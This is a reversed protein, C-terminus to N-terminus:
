DGGGHGHGGSRGHDSGHKQTQCPVNVSNGNPTTKNVTEGHECEVDGDEPHHSPNADPIGHVDDDSDCSDTSGTGGDDDAEDDADDGTACPSATASPTPTDAAPTDTSTPTSTAAGPTNTSTPTNTAAGPTDTPAPTDTAAATNTATPTDTAVPTDTVALLNVGDQSAFAGVAALSVLVAAIGAGILKQRM